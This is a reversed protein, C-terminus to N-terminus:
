IRESWGPYPKEIGEAVHPYDRLDSCRGHQDFRLVTCMAETVVRGFISGYLWIEVAARSGERLPEGFEMEQIEVQPLVRVLYDHIVDM